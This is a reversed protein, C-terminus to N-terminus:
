FKPYKKFYTEIEEQDSTLQQMLEDMSIFTQDPRTYFYFDVDAIEGYIDEDFDFIHIEMSPHRIDKFTPNLGINCMGYKKKGAVEIVVGYVGFHPLYYAGYDINATPFGM